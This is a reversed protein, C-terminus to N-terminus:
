RISRRPPTTATSAPRPPPPACCGTATTSRAIASLPASTGATSRGQRRRRAASSRREGGEDGRRSCGQARAVPGQLRVDQRARYRHQRAQARIAKEEPGAPAFQLAFDLYEFFNPRSWSRTSRRSTSRRRRRAARAAQPVGLAAAGQLRGPDEDRQAHRGPQLAADPLGGACFQTTPAFCRRSARRRRARGTRARRGPLRRSTAPPAAASTATTSPTATESCAGLLLADQRGGAGLARDARRAPGALLMSYPTDSNPTIIATDKYTFVRAENHDPQVAGQVPGLEQRRRVRVDGRLEDRDPPRLHVGGRRDGQRRSARGSRRTRRRPRPM